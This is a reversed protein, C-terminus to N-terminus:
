FFCDYKGFFAIVVSGNEWPAVADAAFGIVFLVTKDTRIV